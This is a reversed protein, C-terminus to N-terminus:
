GIMVQYSQLYSEYLIIVINVDIVHGGFSGLCFDPFLRYGFSCYILDFLNLAVDHLLVQHLDHSIVNLSSWHHILPIFLRTLVPRLVNVLGYEELFPILLVVPDHNCFLHLLQDFLVLLLFKKMLCMFDCLNLALGLWQFAEHLLIPCNRVLLFNNLPFERPM